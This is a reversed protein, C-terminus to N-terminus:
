IANENWKFACEFAKRNHPFNAHTTRPTTTESFCNNITSLFVDHKGRVWLWNCGFMACVDFLFILNHKFLLSMRSTREPQLRVVHNSGFRRVVFRAFQIKCKIQVMLIRYEFTNADSCDPAKAGSCYICEYIPHLYKCKNKILIKICIFCLMIRSRIICSISSENQECFWCSNGRSSCVFMCACLVGFSCHTTM